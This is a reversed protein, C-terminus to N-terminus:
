RRWPPRRWSGPGASRRGTRCVSPRRRHGCSRRRRSRSAASRGRRSSLRRGRHSATPGTTYPQRRLPSHRLQYRMQSATLPDPTRTGEAGGRSRRFRMTLDPKSTAEPIWFKAGHGAGRATENTHLSRRRRTCLPRPGPRTGVPPQHTHRTPLDRAAQRDGAPEAPHTGPQAAASTLASRSSNRRSTSCHRVITNRGHKGLRTPSRTPAPPHTAATARGETAVTLRGGHDTIRPRRGWPSPRRPRPRVTRRPAM